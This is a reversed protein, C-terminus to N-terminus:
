SVSLAAKFPDIVAFDPILHEGVSDEIDNLINSIEEEGSVVDSVVGSVLPIPRNMNVDDVTGVPCPTQDLQDTPRSSMKGPASSSDAGNDAGVIQALKGYNVTYWNTQDYMRKNFRDIEILEQKKLSKFIRRITSVSWFPFNDTRWQAYSNYVWLMGNHEHGLILLWYHIKQLVIAENLGILKALSPQVTYPSEDLLLKSTSNNVKM